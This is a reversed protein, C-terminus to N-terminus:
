SQAPNLAHRQRRRNRQEANLPAHFSTDDDLFYVTRIGHQTLLAETRADFQETAYRCCFVVRSEQPLWALLNPLDSISVALWSPFYDCWGNREREGHVDLIVLNRYCATWEFLLFGSIAIYEIASPAPHLSSGWDEDKDRLTSWVLAAVAYVSYAIWFISGTRVVKAGAAKERARKWRRKQDWPGIKDIKKRARRIGRMEAGNTLKVQGPANGVM